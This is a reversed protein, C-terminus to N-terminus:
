RTGHMGAKEASDLVQQIGSAAGLNYHTYMNRTIFSVIYCKVFIGPYHAYTTFKQM